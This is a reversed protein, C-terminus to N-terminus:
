TKVEISGKYDWVKSAQIDHIHSDDKYIADLVAKLLNDIDPTQQHPMQHMERKMEERWSKPMPIHFIVHAGSESISVKKLQCEEKFAWYRSVSPRMPKKWKDGRTMRPKTCPTIDYIM